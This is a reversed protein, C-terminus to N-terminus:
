RQDQAQGGVAAMAGEGEVKAGAGAKPGAEGMVEAGRGIERAAGRGEQSQQLRLLVVGELVAEGRRVRVEVGM